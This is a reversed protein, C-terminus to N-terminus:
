EGWGGAAAEVFGEMYREVFAGVASATGTDGAGWCCAVLEEFVPDAQVLVKGEVVFASPLKDALFASLANVGPAGVSVTPCSRLQENNMYWVDSCVLVHGGQGEVRGRMAERLRYALPRDSLEAHLHAGTVILVTRSLDIGV